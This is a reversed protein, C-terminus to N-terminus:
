KCPPIPPLAVMPLDGIGQPVPAVQLTYNKDKSVQPQPPTVTCVDTPKPRARKLSDLRKISRMAQELAYPRQKGAPVAANEQAFLGAAVLVAAVLRIWM